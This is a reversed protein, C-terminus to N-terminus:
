IHNSSFILFTKFSFDVSGRQKFLYVHACTPFKIICELKKLFALIIMSVKIKCEKWTNEQLFLLSSSRVSLRAKFIYLSKIYADRTWTKDNDVDPILFIHKKFVFTFSKVINKQVFLSYLASILVSIKCM